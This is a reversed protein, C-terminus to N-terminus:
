PYLSVDAKGNRWSGEITSGDKSLRIFEGEREFICGFFDGKFYDGSKLTLSGYGNLETSENIDDVGARLIKNSDLEIRDIDQFDIEGIVINNPRTSYSLSETEKQPSYVANPIDELTSIQM